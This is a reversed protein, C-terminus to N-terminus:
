IHWHVISEKFIMEVTTCKQITPFLTSCRQSTNTHVFNRKLPPCWSNLLDGKFLTPRSNYMAMELMSILFYPWPFLSLNRMVCKSTPYLILVIEPRRSRMKDKRKIIFHLNLTISQKLHDAPPTYSIGTYGGGGLAMDACDNEKLAMNHLQESVGPM